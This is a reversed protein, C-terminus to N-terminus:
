KQPTVSSFLKQVTETATNAVSGLLESATKSVPEVASAVTSLVSALLDVQMQGIKGVSGMLDNLADAVNSSTEQAM